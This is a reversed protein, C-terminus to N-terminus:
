GKSLRTSASNARESTLCASLAEACRLTVRAAIVMVPAGFSVPPATASRGVAARVSAPHFDCGRPPSVSSASPNTYGRVPRPFVPTSPRRACRTTWPEAPVESTPNGGPTNLTTRTGTLGGPARQDDRAHQQGVGGFNCHLDPHGPSPEDLGLKRVGARTPCEDCDEVPRSVVRSRPAPFTISSM